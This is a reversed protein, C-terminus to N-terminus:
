NRARLYLFLICFYHVHSFFPSNHIQSFYYNFLVCVKRIAVEEAEGLHDEYRSAAKTEGAFSAVTPMSSLTEDAVNAAAEYAEMGLLGDNGAGSQLIMYISFAMVPTPVLCMLTIQWSFYFAVVLGGLVGFTAQLGEGLKISLGEEFDLTYEALAAVIEGPKSEDFFTLDQSLVASVYTNRVRNTLRAAGYEIASTGIFAAAGVVGALIAMIKITGITNGLIDTTSALNDLVDGVVLNMAALSLGVLCKLIIGILIFLKDKPTGHRFLSLFPVPKADAYKKDDEKDNNDNGRNTPDIDLPDSCGGVGVVEGNDTQAKIKSLSVSMAITTASFNM